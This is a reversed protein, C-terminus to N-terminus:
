SCAHAPVKEMDQSKSMRYIEDPTQYNLSQHYRQTNYFKFYYSIGGKLAKLDKYENLFINEYKLSRWLREIYINDLARGKGDMSIQINYSKLLVIFDDSTFQSGQDTNFIVPAGYNDIAEQLARVCFVADLTNSISWSLVRRSYLDLVAVLYVFAGNQKIYTIDTAWVHNASTVLVDRLLYPYIQHGAAKTSLRPKPYIAYLGMERMLRRAHKNSVIFGKRSLTAAM